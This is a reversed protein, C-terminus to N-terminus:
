APLAVCAGGSVLSTDRTRLTDRLYSTDKRTYDEKRIKRLSARVRLKVLDGYSAYPEFYYGHEFSLSTKLSFREGRVFSYRHEFSLLTKTILELNELNYTDSKVPGTISV